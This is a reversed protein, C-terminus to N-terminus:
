MTGARPDGAAIPVRSGDEAELLEFRVGYARELLDPVLVADATGAAVLRGDGLLVVVDALRATAPLEHVSLFVAAGADARERLLQCAVLAWRPDLAALPEDLVIIGDPPAQALARALAVRQCQGSSLEDIGRELLAGLDLEEIVRELAAANRGVMVRALELVRRVSFGSACEFRQSMFSLRRARAGARLADSPTGELLVRGRTPAILGASIRLLTTKGAANPGCVASVRGREISLDIGELVAGAGYDHGIAEFRIMADM